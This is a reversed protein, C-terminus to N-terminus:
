AARRREVEARRDRDAIAQEIETLVTTLRRATERGEPSDPDLPTVTQSM